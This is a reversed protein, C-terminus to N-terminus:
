VAGGGDDPAVDNDDFNVDASAWNMNKEGRQRMAEEEPSKTKFVFGAGM